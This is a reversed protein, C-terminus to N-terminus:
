NLDADEVTAVSVAEGALLRLVGAPNPALHGADVGDVGVAGLVNFDRGYARALADSEVQRSGTARELTHSNHIDSVAGCALPM